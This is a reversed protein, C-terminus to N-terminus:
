EEDPYKDCIARVHADHHSELKAVNAILMRLGREANELYEAIQHEQSRTTGERWTAILHERIEKNTMEDTM